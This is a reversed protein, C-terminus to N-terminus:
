LDSDSLLISWMRTIRCYFDYLVKRKEVFMQSGGPTKLITAIVKLTRDVDDQRLFTQANRHLHYCNHSTLRKLDCGAQCWSMAIAESLLREQTNSLFLIVEDKFITTICETFSHPCGHGTFAVSGSHGGGSIFCVTSAMESWFWGTNGFSSNHLASM